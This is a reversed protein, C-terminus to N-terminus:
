FLAFAIAKASKELPRASSFRSFVALDKDAFAILAADRVLEHPVDAESSTVFVFSQGPSAVSM